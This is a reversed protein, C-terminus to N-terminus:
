LQGSFARHQLSSFLSDLTSLHLRLAGIKMTIKAVRKEFVVQQELPPLPITLSGLGDTNINYQGASTKARELLMKRGTPGSLFTQVFHPNVVESNIRARILYSAYIFEGVSFDSVKEISSTVVASRGVYDKNGNTRVFLIDGEQLRLRSFEKESVPVCKLDELSIIGGVVNPIRLAPSGNTQSKESTGYRFEQVLQSLNKTPWMLKDPETSGFMELFVSQTLSDLLAIAQRRKQRLQDAKDLIAAIRKQEDLPPLDLEIARLDKVSLHKVTVFPTRDEITKLASPLFHFLYNNDLQHPKGSIKCVRQNLLSANGQWRARNFEGDMGILIDSNEVVFDRDYNGEYFTDTYGRVVDRIRILPLGKGDTNFGGSKFAFGSVIVSVDGLSVTSRARKM